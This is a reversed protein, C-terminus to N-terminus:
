MYSKAEEGPNPLGAIRWAERMSRFLRAVCQADLKSVHCAHSVPVLAGHDLYHERLQQLIEWHEDTLTGIGDEGAIQEALEKNWLAPDNLFGDTDFAALTSHKIMTEM